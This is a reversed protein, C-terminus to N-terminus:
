AFAQNLGPASHLIGSHDHLTAVLASQHDERGRPGHVTRRALSVRTWADGPTPGTWNGRHAAAQARPPPPSQNPIGISRLPQQRRQKRSCSSLGSSQAGFGALGSLLHKKQAMSVGMGGRSGRQPWGLVGGGGPPGLITGSPRSRQLWRQGLTPVILRRPTQPTNGGGGGEKPTGCVARIAGGM